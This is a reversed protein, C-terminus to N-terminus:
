RLVWLPEILIFYYDYLNFPCFIPFPKWFFTDRPEKNHRSITAAPQQKMMPLQAIRAFYSRVTWSDAGSDGPELKAAWVWLPEIVMVPASTVSQLRVAVIVARAIVSSSALFNASRTFIFSSGQPSLSVVLISLGV